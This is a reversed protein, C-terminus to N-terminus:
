NVKKKTRKEFVISWRLLGVLIGIGIGIGVGIGFPSFVLSWIGMFMVIGVCMVGQVFPFQKKWVNLVMYGLRIYWVYEDQDKCLKLSVGMCIDRYPTVALHLFAHQSMLKMGDIEVYETGSFTSYTSAIIGDVVITGDTTLPNYLGKRTITRIKTVKVPGSLTQVFDGVKVHSAPVPNSKKNDMFIMHRSTLELPAEDLATHIQLYETPKTHHFHDIAFVTKYQGSATLVKDGVTLDKMAVKGKGHV